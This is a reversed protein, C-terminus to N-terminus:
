GAFLEEGKDDIYDTLQGWWKQIEILTNKNIIRLEQIKYTHLSFASTCFNMTLLLLFVDLLLFVHCNFRENWENELKM